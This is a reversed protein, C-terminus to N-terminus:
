APGNVRNMAKDLGSRMWIETGESADIVASEVAKMENRRFRGLVFDAADIPEPVPGIGIRLRAFTETGLHRILSALGKQGGASGGPRMRLRGLDLHFDDCVVLIEPLAANFFDIVQRVARGSENMYTQPTVLLVKEDGLAAEALQSEFRRRPKSADLRRTLEGIVEFGVNHRTREYQPGPNGLGVVIKM